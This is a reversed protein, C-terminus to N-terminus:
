GWADCSSSDLWTEKETIIERTAKHNLRWRSILEAHVETKTM